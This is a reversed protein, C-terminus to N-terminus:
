LEENSSEPVSLLELCTAAILSNTISSVLLEGSNM